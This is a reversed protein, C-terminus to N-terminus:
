RAKTLVKEKNVDEEKKHEEANSAVDDSGKQEKKEQQEAKTELVKQKKEREKDRLESAKKREAFVTELELQKAKADGTLLVLKHEQIAKLIDIKKKMGVAGVVVGQEKARIAKVDNVNYVTVIELGKKTNRLAAATGYGIRVKPRHGKKSLRMKNQWGRPRRWADGLRKKTHARHRIFKTM